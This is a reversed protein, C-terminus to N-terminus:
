RSSCRRHLIESLVGFVSAVILLLWLNIHFDTHPSESSTSDMFFNVNEASQTQGADGLVDLTLVAGSSSSAPSVAFTQANSQDTGTLPTDDSGIIAANASSSMTFQTLAYVLSLLRSKKM